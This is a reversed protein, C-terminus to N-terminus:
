PAKRFQPAIPMPLATIARETGAVSHDFLGRGRFHPDEFAEELRVVITACCDATALVPAWESARKQLIRAAVGEKTAKPDSRDDRLAKPLDIAACFGDWFKQELAGLAVFRGDKTPYLGYRPSGGTLLAAGNEPARGTAALDAHAFAAFTFMADAMAIDIRAGKGTKHRQLLALLINAVAPLSGGGIDAIQTPPLVPHQADGCSLALLGTLALYNIDHGAELARPGDQGYGTISCYILGPNIKSLAEYGLGLREMVGPRFQEVLVDAVEIMPRLGELAVKDKLDVFLSSKGRNLLAFPVSNGDVFPPYARLDEGGPKEIKVVEAGAEALMLTALPGPLLTTFDLVKIGSLPQESM